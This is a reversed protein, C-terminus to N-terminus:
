KTPDLIFLSTYNYFNVSKHGETTINYLLYQFSVSWCSFWFIFNWHPASIAQNISFNFAVIATM